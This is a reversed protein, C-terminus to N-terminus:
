RSSTASPSRARPTCRPRGRDHARPTVIDDLLINDFGVVSVEDPVRSRRPRSVAQMLGIAMQDNYAICRARHGATAAFDEPPAGPRRPDDAYLLRPPPGQPRARARSRPSARWRVGDAWSQRQGLSIPSRRTGSVSGLHEMARRVGRPNDTVVSHVDPLVRNLVVTPVQKAMMRIASDSMRSSSSLVIGDVTGLAREVAVREARSSEQTDCLMLAYGNVSASDHAGRIIEVYFPNGIDSVFLALTRTKKHAPSGAETTAVRYGLEEAVARIHAATQASVRGPRSFARSVTSPAVGAAKAVDYVTPRKQM